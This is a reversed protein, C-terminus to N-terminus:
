SEIEDESYIKSVSLEKDTFVASPKRCRNKELKIELQTATNMLLPM